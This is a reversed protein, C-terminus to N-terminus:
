KECSLFILRVTTFRIVQKRLINCYYNYLINVSSFVSDFVSCYQIDVNSLIANPDRLLRDRRNIHSYVRIKCRKVIALSKTRIAGVSVTCMVAAAIERDIHKELLVEVFSPTDELLWLVYFILINYTVSVPKNHAVCVCVIQDCEVFWDRGITWGINDNSIQRICVM